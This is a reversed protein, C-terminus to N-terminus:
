HSNKKKHSILMRAREAIDEPTLKVIKLLESVKGHTIFEDPIGMRDCTIDDILSNEELFELIGSGFGGNLAGEEVTLWINNKMALEKFLEDDLPKIFRANVITASFGEKSLEEGAKLAFSVMRGIAIIAIDKGETLIEGEGVKIPNANYDVEVGVGKGRPYRIAFPGNYQHATRLLAVLEAEDKPASIVINPIPRLYAIDFCGHHTPGDEGVLGGRDIAIIVPLNQLCVDHIVMDYARQLFTSYIACIPKLGMTSLGAAFTIAHGESIGVDFFRDPFRNKFQITGTGDPMAATIAVVKKDEEGLKTIARGFVETYTTGGSVSNFKGTNPNFASVGHFLTANEEAPTYGKGKTTLIHLLVPGKLKLAGDISEILDEINHGDIPGLYRYGQEEFLMGPVLLNKLGEEFRRAYNFLEWGKRPISQVLAQLRSRIQDFAPNTIIKSLYKALAGVNPSISMENDNLIILIDRGSEGTRDLGELALGGTLAGDGIVAVVKFDDGRIDRATAIGLAASISTSAHGVSFTDYVSEDRKVFGSIGGLTRLTPFENRRGTIIKHAYTQHGVDWVIKDRPCDLVSHLAITLEVVGLSPALHGGNRSVVEIIYDRLEDALIYLDDIPLGKLDSPSNIRSLIKYKKM